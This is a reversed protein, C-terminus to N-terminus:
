EFGNAFMADVPVDGRPQIALALQWGPNVGQSGYGGRVTGDRARDNFDRNYDVYAAIPSTDVASGSLANALPHLDMRNMAGTVIGSPNNLHVSANAFSDTVNGALTGGSIATTAFVANGRVLQQFSPNVTTSIFIGNGTSVVTNQFVHIRRVEGNQPGIFLAPGQSNYLVNAIFIVNGEGQFLGETGTPNQFFFNGSIIYDDNAGNGTLPFTGVLLNPRAEGGTSSNGSKHFVNHRIVTQGTAPLTEFGIGSPRSAAFQHKVQLNYGITDRILNYEILGNVFPQAGDSNGLYIGTGAREIVSDRVVWNWAPGKTSIGVVQQNAAFDHVRLDDLTIHHSWASAHPGQITTDSKVGDIDDTNTGDIDLHSVRVFSSNRIQVVNRIGNLPEGKLVASHDPPGEIVICNGANANLDYIRLGNLYQGSALLIRQGPQAATVAAQYDSNADVDITLTITTQMCGGYSQALETLAPARQPLLLFLVAAFSRARM